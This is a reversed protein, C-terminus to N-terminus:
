RRRGGPRGGFPSGGGSPADEIPEITQVVIPDGEAVGSVLETTEDGELGIEVPRRDVQVGVLTGDEAPDGTEPDPPAPKSGALVPDIPWSVIAGAPFDGMPKNLYAILEGGIVGRVNATDPVPTRM